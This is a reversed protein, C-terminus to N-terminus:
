QAPKLGAAAMCQKIPEQLKAMVSEPINGGAEKVANADEPTFLNTGKEFYCACAQKFKEADMGAPQHNFCSATFSKIFANPIPVDLNVDKMQVDGGADVVPHRVYDWGYKVGIGVLVLGAAVTAAIILNRM